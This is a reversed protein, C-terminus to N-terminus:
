ASFFILNIEEEEDRRRARERKSRKKEFYIHNKSVLTIETKIKCTVCKYNM